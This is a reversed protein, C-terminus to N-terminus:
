KEFLIISSRSVLHENRSKLEGEMDSKRDRYIIYPENLFIDEEKLICAQVFHYGAKLNMFRPLKHRKGGCYEDADIFGRECLYEVAKHRTAFKNKSVVYFNRTGCYGSSLRRDATRRYRILYM